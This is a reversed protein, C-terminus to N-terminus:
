ASSPMRTQGRSQLESTHEESRQLTQGIRATVSRRNVRHDEDQWGALTGMRWPSLRRSSVGHNWRSARHHEPSKRLSAKRSRFLTTYPFPPHRPTPPTTISTSNT